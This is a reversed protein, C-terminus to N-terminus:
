MHIDVLGAINVGFEIIPKVISKLCMQAVHYLGFPMSIQQMVIKAYCKITWNWLLNRNFWWTLFITLSNGWSFRLPPDTAEGHFSFRKLTCCSLTGKSFYCASNNWVVITCPINKQLHPQSSIAAAIAYRLVCVFM